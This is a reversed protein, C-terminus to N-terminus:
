ENRTEEMMRRLEQRARYLRSKVSGEPQGTIESIERVSFSDEYYLAVLVRLDPDLKALAADLREDGTYPTSQTNM